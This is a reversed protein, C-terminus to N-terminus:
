PVTPPSLMALLKELTAKLEDQNRLLEILLERHEHVETRHEHMERQITAVSLSLNILQKQEMERNALQAYARPPPMPTDDDDTM